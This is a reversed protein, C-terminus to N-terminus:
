LLRRAIADVFEWSDLARAPSPSALLALDGTMEGAAIADLSAKELAAAFDSLAGNGDLQGRRALAGTWAFILAIPNTSTREGKQWRYFHKQVTGHAAEYEVAGSPSLLVSTM